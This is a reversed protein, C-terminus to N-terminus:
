NVEKINGDFTLTLTRDFNHFNKCKLVSLFFVTLVYCPYNMDAFIFTDLYMVYRYSDVKYKYSTYITHRIYVVKLINNLNWIKMLNSHNSHNGEHDHRCWWEFELPTAM